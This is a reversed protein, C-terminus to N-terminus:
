YRYSRRGRPPEVVASAQVTAADIHFLGMVRSLNTYDDPDGDGSGMAIHGLDYGALAADFHIWKNGLYAMTWAHPVFVNRRDGFKDAYTMGAVVQAPIGVARCMAAALVAHETCDGRRTKIAESASAWGVSYDKILIHERACTEIRKVAVVADKTPGVAWRALAVVESNNSDLFTTPKLAELAEADNGKYPFPVGTPTKQATVTVTLGSPDASVTQNDYEPVILRAQPQPSFHYRVSGATALNTLPRPSALLIEKMVDLYADKSLAYPRTCAVAELKFAAAPAIAKRMKFNDNVYITELVGDTESQIEWLTERRGLIDVEKRGTVHVKVTFGRLSGPDFQVYSYELGEKLGQSQQFLRVGESLLADKPWTATRPEVQAATGGLVKMKGNSDVKGEVVQSMTSLSEVTKFALPKGVLTETHEETTALTVPNGLHKINRSMTHTTIVKGARVRRTHIIHGIKSGNVILAFYEVEDAAAAWSAALLVASAMVGLSKKLM